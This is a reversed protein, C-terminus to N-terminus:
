YCKGIRRSSSVEHVTTAVEHTVKHAGYSQRSGAGYILINTPEIKLHGKPTIM